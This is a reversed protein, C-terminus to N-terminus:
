GHQIRTPIPYLVHLPLLDVCTGLSPTLAFARPTESNKITQHQGTQTVAPSLTDTAHFPRKHIHYESPTIEPPHSQLRIRHHVTPRAAM